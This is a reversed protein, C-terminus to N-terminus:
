LQSILVVVGSQLDLRAKDGEEATIIQETTQQTDDEITIYSAPKEVPKYYMQQLWIVDRTQHVRDTDPNWMRYTDGSHGLAYGVFVCQVGRDALKPTKDSKIKVTGAEGWVHLHNTFKPNEGCWHVYRTDAKGQIEIVTFGDLLAATKYAKRFLRYRVEYPINAQVMLARARNAVVTLGIEALHNQQLTDRV